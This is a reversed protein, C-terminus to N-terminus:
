YEEWTYTWDTWDSEEKGLIDSSPDADSDFTPVSVDLLQGETNIEETEIMPKIYKKM